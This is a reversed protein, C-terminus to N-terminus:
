SRRETRAPPTGSSRIAAVFVSEHQICENRVVYPTASPSRMLSRIESRATTQGPRSTSRGHTFIVYRIGRSHADELAALAAERVHGMAEMYSVERRGRESLHFDVETSGPLARYQTWDGLGKKFAQTMNWLIM